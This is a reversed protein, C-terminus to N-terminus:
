WDAFCLLSYNGTVVPAYKKMVLPSAAEKPIVTLLEGKINRGEMCLVGTRGLVRRCLTHFQVVVEM